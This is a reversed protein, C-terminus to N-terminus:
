RGPRIWRASAVAGLLRPGNMLWITVAGSTHRWLLDARSDGNYDGSGVIQWAQDVTGVSGGGIIQTGNMLWITVAGSTHRWLLDARSDGNYDGSGVIQWAQDVTGVSGGGIIQTGNMLWITVAGSTHRWLLDARSDGNYDGSGVIQWAQDVTGVSGGGIIQTGNMLWITAAGSTHRWLLDARSDGNYDGSGVIQWAQDVTGVSGGGIIQTGNMLWITAAGSTHRWAIDSYRDGNHDSSTRNTSVTWGTDTLMGRMIPGLNHIVEGPALASTMLSNPSGNPYMAEDLHSYSSGQAWVGPAYLKPVVGTNANLANVGNFFINNSVLQAGLAASPNPFLSTNLLSQSLGNIAFRDYVVPFGSLGWTGTGGSGNMTGFFGLGHGLEHLVVTELDFKSGALGDTGLYWDFSSNFNAVIDASGSTLDTGSLKKAVAAAYWTGPTPAGPFDRFITTARASGLVNAGLVTWNATVRIPVSSQIQSAFIDVAAQFASQAAPSFGNYTVVFTSLPAGPVVVNIDPGVYTEGAFTGPPDEILPGPASVIPGSAASPAQASLSVGIGVDTWRHEIIFATAMAAM